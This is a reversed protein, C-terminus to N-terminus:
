NLFVYIIFILILGVITAVTKSGESSSSDFLIGGIGKFIASIITIGVKIFIWLIILTLITTLM